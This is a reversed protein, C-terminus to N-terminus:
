NLFEQNEAEAEEKLKNSQIRVVVDVAEKMKSALYRQEFGFLSAFNPIKPLTITPNTITTTSDPTQQQPTTTLHSSPNVPPPSPPVTVTNMLSAIENVDPSTSDLNLLKSIFNSSISSSQVTGETKDKSIFHDITVKTFRPYPM